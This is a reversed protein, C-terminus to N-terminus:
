GEWVSRGAGRTTFGLADRGRLGYPQILAMVLVVYLAWFVFSVPSILSPYQLASLWSKIVPITIFLVFAIQLVLWLLIIAISQHWPWPAIPGAELPRRVMPRGTLARRLVWVLYLVGFGGSAAVLTLMVQSARTLNEATDAISM